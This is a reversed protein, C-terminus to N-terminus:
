DDDSNGSFLPTARALQVSRMRGLRDSLEAPPVGVDRLLCAHLIARLQRNVIQMHSYWDAPRPDPTAGHALANRYTKAVDAFREDGVLDSSFPDTYAMLDGVRSRFTPEGAHALYQRAWERLENSCGEFLEQTRRKVARRSLTRAAFTSRSRHYAELGHYLALLETELYMKHERALIFSISAVALQSEAITTFWNTVAADLDEIEHLRLPWEHSWDQDDDDDDAVPSAQPNARHLKWHRDGDTLAMSPPSSSVGTMVVHLIQLPRVIDDFLRRLKWPEESPRFTWWADITQAVSTARLSGSQEWSLILTGLELEIESPDPPSFSVSKLRGSSWEIDIADRVRAWRSLGEFTVSISDFAEPAPGDGIVGNTAALMSVRSAPEMGGTSHKVFADLLTVYSAGHCRGIIRRRPVPRGIKSDAWGSDQGIIRMTWGESADFLATAAFPNEEDDDFWWHGHYELTEDAM